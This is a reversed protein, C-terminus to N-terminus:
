RNPSGVLKDLRRMAVNVEHPFMYPAAKWARVAAQSAAILENTMAVSKKAALDIEALLAKEPDFRRFSM